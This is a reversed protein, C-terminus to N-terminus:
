FYLVPGGKVKALDAPKYPADSGAFDVVLDALDQRGKGSGGGGYNVQVDPHAKRYAEIAAEQSAKQFTSGSGNLVTKSGKSAGDSKGCSVSLAAVAICVPIRM